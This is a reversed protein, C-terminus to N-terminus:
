KRIPVPPKQQLFRERYVLTDGDWKGVSEGYWTIDPDEKLHAKTWNGIRWARQMGRNFKTGFRALSLAAISSLVILM